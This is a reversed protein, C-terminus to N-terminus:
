GNNKSSDISYVELYHFHFRFIDFMYGTPKLIVLIKVWFSGPRHNTPVVEERRRKSVPPWYALALACSARSCRALKKDLLSSVECGPISGGAEEKLNPYREVMM